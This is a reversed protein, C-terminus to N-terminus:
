SAAPGPMLLWVSVTGAPARSASRPRAPAPQEAVAREDRQGPQEHDEHDKSSIRGAPRDDGGVPDPDVIRAATGSAIRAAHWVSLMSVPPMSRDTPVTAEIAANMTAVWVPALPRRDAITRPRTAAASAPMTLPM